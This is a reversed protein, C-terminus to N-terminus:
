RRKHRNKFREDEAKLKRAFYVTLAVLAVALVALGVTAWVAVPDGESLADFYRSLVNARATRM